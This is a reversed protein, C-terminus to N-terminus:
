APPATRHPPVGTTTINNSVPPTPTVVPTAVVARRFSLRPLLKPKEATQSPDLAKYGENLTSLISTAMLGIFLQSWFNMSQLPVGGITIAAAYPTHSFIVIGIVGAVWAIAQTIAGNWNRGSLYKFFNVVTFILTGLAVLPDLSM